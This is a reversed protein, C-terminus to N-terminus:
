EEAEYTVRFQIRHELNQNASIRFQLQPRLAFM